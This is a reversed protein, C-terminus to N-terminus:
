ANKSLLYKLLVAVTRDEQVHNQLCLSLVEAYTFWAPYTREGEQTAVSARTITQPAIEALYYYLDWVVTAGCVSRHLKHFIESPLDLGTEEELERRAGAAAIRNMDIDPKDKEVLYEDLSDFIKGGPLRYDWNGTEMRWEKMMLIRTGDTVLTRAGPSREAFEITKEKNGPFMMRQTAVRILRGHYREQPEELTRVLAERTQVIHEILRIVEDSSKNELDGYNDVAVHVHPLINESSDGLRYMVEDPRDRFLDPSRLELRARRIEDPAYIGLLLTHDLVGNPHVSDPNNFLANNASYVPFKDPSVTHFGYREQRDGEMKRVWHLGIEGSGVSNEFEETTVYTNETTNDQQRAPRTIYRMPVQIVGEVCLRSKRIADILTTKGACTSGVIAVSDIDQLEGLRAENPIYVSDLRAVSQKLSSLM